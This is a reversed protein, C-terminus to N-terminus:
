GLPARWLSAALTRRVVTEAPAIGPVVVLDEDIGLVRLRDIRRPGIDRAALIAALGLAYAVPMGLLCVIAFSGVLVLVDM